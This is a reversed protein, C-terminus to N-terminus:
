KMAEIEYELEDKLKPEFRGSYFDIRAAQMLKSALIRAAKGRQEENANQIHPDIFILGFKPSKGKHKLHRFLAKEAGMLQISSAPMRALKELSGVSILLRVALLPDIISSFNPMIEKATEKVYKELSKKQEILNKIAAAYQKIITEDEITLEVGTSEKFNPYNDRNGYKVIKDVMEKQPSNLEPYHLSYWEHLREILLNIIRNMDDLASGAQILLRDRKVMGKMRKRSIECGFASLFENFENDDKVFGLSIAYERIGKRMLKDGGGEIIEYGKLNSALGSLPKSIEDAAKQPNKEFLDYFILEGSESFAFIGIPSRSILAKM